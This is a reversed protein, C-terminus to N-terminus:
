LPLAELNGLLANWGQNHHAKVDGDIFGEHILEIETAKGKDKFLVTVTTDPHPGNEWRWTFVLKKNAIIEKYIGIAVHNNGEMDHMSFRYEGGVTLEVEMVPPSKLNPSHWKALLEPDTFYSFVTSAPAQITKTITLTNANTNM